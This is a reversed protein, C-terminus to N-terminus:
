EGRRSGRLQRASEIVTALLAATGFSVVVVTLAAPVDRGVADVVVWGLYAAMVPGVIPGAGAISAFHHGFLVTPRTPVYDVGDRREHAPTVRSDDIGFLRQLYRGYVLYAAVFFLAGVALLLAGNM